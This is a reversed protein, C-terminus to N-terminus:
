APFFVKHPRWRGGEARLIAIFTGDPAYARALEASPETQLKPIRGQQVDECAIEDLQVAPYHQLSMDPPLIHQRWNKHDLELLDDLTISEELHFAGSAVRMLGALHAGVGLVEGIDYALSRIYTGSSCVVDLKFLTPQWETIELSDIRINRAKREVSKGERALEYLKKGGQKIASYMPPLQEIEGIFRPLVTQVDEQTIQSADQQAIVQGEADYTETITGLQVTALYRKTTHMAYESLRTANGVCIVLVGTALPDLTGAHGVKKIKLGRRVKAVVDHSTM